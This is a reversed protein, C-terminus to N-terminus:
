TYLLEIDKKTSLKITYLNTSLYLKQTSLELIETSIKLLQSFVSM